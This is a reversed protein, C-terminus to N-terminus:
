GASEEAARLIAICLAIAPTAGANAKGDDIEGSWIRGVYRRDIRNMAVSWGADSLVREALAVAADISATFRPLCSSAGYTDHTYWIARAGPRKRKGRVGARVEVWTTGKVVYAYEDESPGYKPWFSLAVAIECDLERDPGTAKELREILERM